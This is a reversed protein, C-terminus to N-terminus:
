HDVVVMLAVMEAKWWSVGIGKWRREAAMAVMVREQAAWAAPM